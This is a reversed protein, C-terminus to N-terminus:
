SLKGPKSPHVSRHPRHRVPERARRRREDSWWADDELTTRIAVVRARLAVNSRASLELVWDGKRYRRVASPDDPRGALGSYSWGILTKPVVWDGILFPPETV